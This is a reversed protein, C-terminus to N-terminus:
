RSHPQMLGGAAPNHAPPM